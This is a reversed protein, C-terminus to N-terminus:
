ALQDDVYNGANTVVLKEYSQLYREFRERKQNM